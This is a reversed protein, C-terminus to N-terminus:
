CYSPIFCELLRLHKSQYMFLAIESAYGKHPVNM